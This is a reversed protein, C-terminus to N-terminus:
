LPPGKLILPLGAAMLIVRTAIAAVQQNLRGQNDRFDRALKNDPIISMGVENSVLVVPVRAAAAKLAALLGATETKVDRAALMTNSLWLTLCDVLIPRAAVAERLLVDALALPADVTRWGPLRSARHAAIRARMEEDFAEATAIYVWPPSGATLMAEGQWSKGSRAGGIILTIPHSAMLGVM